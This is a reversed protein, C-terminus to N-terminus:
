IVPPLDLIEEFVPISAITSDSEKFNIHALFSEAFGNGIPSAVVVCSQGPTQFTVIKAFCDINVRFPSLCDVTLIVYFISM